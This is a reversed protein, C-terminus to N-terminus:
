PLARGISRWVRATEGPRRRPVRAWIGGHAQAQAQEYGDLLKEILGAVTM